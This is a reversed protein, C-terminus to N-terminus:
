EYANRPSFTTEIAIAKGDANAATHPRLSFEPPQPGEFQLHITAVRTRGSPLKEAPLNNFAALIVREQQIAEPDYFPPTKFAAHEGGEIGTIRVTDAPGAFEIQYAALPVQKSDVFIDFATFRVTRREGSLTTLVFALLAFSLAKRM